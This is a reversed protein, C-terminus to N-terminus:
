GPAFHRPLHEGLWARLEARFAEEEASYRFDM